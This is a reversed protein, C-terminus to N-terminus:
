PKDNTIENIKKLIRDIYYDYNINYDKMNKEEFNNFITVTRNAIVMEDNGNDKRKIYLGGGNSVYVRNINGLKKETHKEFSYKPNVYEKGKSSHTTKTLVGTQYFCKYKKKDIKQAITFDYITDSSKVFTEVDIGDIFYAHLAKSIIRPTNTGDTLPKKMVFAGKHKYNVYGDGQIETIYNNVDSRIYKNYKVYELTFGTEKSWEECIKHYEEYESRKIRCTIGDTNASLLEYGQLELREILTFLWLQCNITINLFARIDYLFGNEYNLKGFFSNLLLKYVSNILSHHKREKNSLTEDNRLSKSKLRQAKVDSYLQLIEIKLHEPIVKSIVLWSPYFSDVDCDIVLHEDDSKFIGAKDKSHLGGQGIKYEIGKGKFIVDKVVSNREDFLKIEYNGKKNLVHKATINKLVRLLEYEYKKTKFQINDPIITKFEVKSRYTKSRKVEDPDEGTADCYMKLWLVDNISSTALPLVYESFQEEIDYRLQIDDLFKNFIKMNVDVDTFCYMLIKNCKELYSLEKGDEIVVQDIVPVDHELPIEELTHYDLHVGCIKLNQVNFGKRVYDLLDIYKYTEFRLAHKWQVEDGIYIGKEIVRTAIRKLETNNLPQTLCNNLLINDFTKINFGVLILDYKDSLDFIYKTLRKHFTRINTDSFQEFNDIRGTQITMWKFVICFYDPLTEIDYSIYLKEKM